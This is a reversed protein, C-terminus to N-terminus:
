PVSGSVTSFRCTVRSDGWLKVVSLRSDVQIRVRLMLFDVCM